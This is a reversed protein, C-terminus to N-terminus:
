KGLLSRRQYIRPLLLSTLHWLLSHRLRHQWLLPRPNRAVPLPVALQRDELLPAKPVVAAVVWLSANSAWIRLCLASIPTTGKALIASHGTSGARSLNIGVLWSGWHTMLQLGNGRPVFSRGMRTLPSPCLLPIALLRVRRVLSPGLGVLTFKDMFRADSVVSDIPTSALDKQKSGFQTLLDNYWPHLSHLFLMVQIIPPPPLQCNPFPTWMVRFRSCFKHLGKKDGQTTNFLAAQHPTHPFYGPVSHLSRYWAVSSAHPSSADVAIHPLEGLSGRMSQGLPGASRRFAGLSGGM